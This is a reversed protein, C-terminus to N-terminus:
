KLIQHHAVGIIVLFNLLNFFAHMLINVLLSGTAEYAVTFCLALLFLAPLSSLSVHMAAFVAASVIAAPVLGACRKLVGYLYGRFIIEEAAPAVICGLLMTLCVTGRHSAESANLFFEVINQPKSKGSLALETLRGALSVLPCAAILLGIAFAVCALPTRRTIGFQRFPDINRYHLFGGIFILIGLYGVGGRILDKQTLDHEPGSFGNVIATGFWLLFILCLIFDPQGFAAVSVKGGERYVMQALSFYVGAGIVLWAGLLAALWVPFGPPFLDV